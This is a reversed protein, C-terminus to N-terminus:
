SLNLASQKKQQKAKYMADDAIRLLEPLTQCRENLFAYGASLSTRWGQRATAESFAKEIRALIAKVEVEASGQFVLVFEDGGVRAVLDSSRINGELVQALLQLARDGAEHGHTDNIVKFSDCDIVAVIFAQARRRARTLASEASEHLARRNLLGTLPDRRAHTQYTTLSDEFQAFLLMIAGFSVFRVSEDLIVQALSLRSTLASEQFGVIVTTLAVLVLGIWRGGLRTSVWIPLIYLSSLALSSRFGEHLGCVVLLAVLGALLATSRPRKAYAHVLRNSTQVSM